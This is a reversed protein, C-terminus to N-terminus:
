DTSVRSKEVDTFQEVLDLVLEKLDGRNPLTGIMGYLASSRRPLGADDSGLLASVRKMLRSVWAAPLKRTIFQAAALLFKNGSKRIDRKGAKQVAGILDNLFTEVKGVHAFNVTVHLSAPYHQRDLHWGRLGMEDGVEYIDLTDSAVALVSMAPNGLVEVGPISQIGNQIAVATEMVQGAIELYGEEGLHNMVAWASAVTGGPRTGGMTPSAYVGGPWDMYAFLQHRRIERDRYLIVSAGKATYGYKHLDASLSTVGPVSFDFDPVPYGLKRVFPLMFGGVCADVHCLIGKEQAIAALAPIPDIIGHPYAPASGVILITNATIAQHVATVDAQWDEDVAVHVPKVGFYHSAKEFAPHATVPLVMEPQTVQPRNVKAWERATLVAMLISETGGSTMNGVVQGTSGLLAASMAVVEAECQRLSPFASPNLMNESFFMNYAAKSVATVAEGASFVLSFVKGEQWRLDASRRAQLQALVQEKSQRKDPLFMLSGAM